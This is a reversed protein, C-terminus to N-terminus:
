LKPRGRKKRIECSFFSIGPATYAVYRRYKWLGSTPVLNKVVEKTKVRNRVRELKRGPRGVDADRAFHPLASKSVLVSRRQGRESKCLGADDKREAQEREKGQKRKKEQIMSVTGTDEVGRTKYGKDFKSAM